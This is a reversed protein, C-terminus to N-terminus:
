SKKIKKKNNPFARCVFVSFYIASCFKNYYLNQVGITFIILTKKKTSFHKKVNFFNNINKLPKEM